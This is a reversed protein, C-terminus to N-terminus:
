ILFNVQLITDHDRKSSYSDWQSFGSHKLRAEQPVRKLKTSDEIRQEM